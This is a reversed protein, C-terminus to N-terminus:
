IRTMISFVHLTSSLHSFGVLLFVTSNIELCTFLQNGATTIIIQLFFRQTPTNRLYGESKSLQQRCSQAETLGCAILITISTIPRWHAPVWCGVEGDCVPSTYPYLTVSMSCSSSTALYLVSCRRLNWGLILQPEARRNRWTVCSFRNNLSQM